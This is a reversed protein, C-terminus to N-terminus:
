QRYLDIEREDVMASARCAEYALKVDMPINKFYADVIVPVAHYGIMMNTEGGQMSWVPLTGNEKYHALFSSIFDANAEPQM